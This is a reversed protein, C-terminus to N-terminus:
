MVKNKRISEAAQGNCSNDDLSPPLSITEMEGTKIEHHMVTTFKLGEVVNQFEQKLERPTEPLESKEGWIRKGEVHGWESSRSCM